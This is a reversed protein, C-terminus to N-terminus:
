AAAPFAAPCRSGPSASGCLTPRLSYIRPSIIEHAAQAHEGTQQNNGYAHYQYANRHKGAQRIGVQFIVADVAPHVRQFGLGTIDAVQGAPHGHFGEGFFAAMGGSGFFIDVSFDLPNIIFVARICHDHLSGALKINVRRGTVVKYGLIQSILISFYFIILNIVLSHTKFIFSYLYYLFTISLMATIIKVFLSTWLNDRRFKLTIFEIFTWLMIPLVAIKLHEWVSENVASFPALFMSKGSFKFLFHLLTGIISIVFFGIIYLIKQKREDLLKEKEIDLTNM